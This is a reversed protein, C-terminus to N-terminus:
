WATSLGIQINDFLPELIDADVGALGTLLRDDNGRADYPQHRRTDQM